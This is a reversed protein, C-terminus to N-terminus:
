NRIDGISVHESDPMVEHGQKRIVDVGGALVQGRAAIRKARHRRLQDVVVAAIMVVGIVFPQMTGGLHLLVLAISLMSLLVAGAVMGAVSGIAGFVSVGGIIAAAIANLEYNGGGFSADAAGLNSAQLVGGLAALCGCLAYVGITLSRIPLGLSVAAARNGGMSRLQVGVTTYELVVHVAIAIALAYFVLAPISFVTTTGVSGFSSSLPGIPTGGSITTVLASVMFLTGLTVIIPSVDILSILLGNLLGVGLGAGVGGAMSAPVSAGTTSLAAATVAGALFESGVSLDIGATLMVLGEGCVTIVVYSSTVGINSWTAGALFTSTQTAGIGVILVIAVVPPLALSYLLRARWGVTIATAGTRGALPRDGEPQAHSSRRM